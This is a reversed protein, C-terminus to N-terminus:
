PQELHHLATAMMRTIAAALRSHDFLPPRLHVRVVGIEAEGADPARRPM